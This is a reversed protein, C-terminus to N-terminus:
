FHLMAGVYPGDLDLDAQAEDDDVKLSMKRIGVELGLDLVSDFMYAIKANYDTLQNEDYKVFNAEVALSLGSLPLDFQFKSYLMPLTIDLDVKESNNLSSEAYIYGDYQRATIGLDINVWNDLLEYYLTVDNSSLDFDSYVESLASFNSDGLGFSQSLIATQDSQINQNTYKVNPLVPVPHEIAIYFFSNDSDNLGLAQTTIAPDGAQGTYDSTWKGAGAYIGFVTDALACPALTSLTLGLAMSLPSLKM